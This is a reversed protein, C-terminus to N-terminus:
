RGIQFLETGHASSALWTEGEVRLVSIPPAALQWTWQEEGTAGDIGAVVRDRAWVIKSDHPFLAVRAGAIRHTWSRRGSQLDLAFVEHSSPGVRTDVFVFHAALVVSAIERPARVSWRPATFDQRYLEVLDGTVVVVTDHNSGAVRAGVALALHAEQEITGGRDVWRLRLGPPVRDIITAVVHQYPKGPHPADPNDITRTTSLTHVGLAGGAIRAEIRVAPLTWQREGSQISALRGGEHHLVQERAFLVDGGDLVLEPNGWTKPVRWRGDRSQVAVGDGAIAAHKCDAPVEVGDLQTASRDLRHVVCGGGHIWFGADSRVLEGGVSWRRLTTGRSTVVSTASPPEREGSACAALLAFGFALRTM